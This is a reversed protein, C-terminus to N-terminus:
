AGSRSANEAPPPVAFARVGTFSYASSIATFRGSKRDRYGDALRHIANWVGPCSLASLNAGNQTMQEISDYYSSLTYYGFIGGEITGDDKLTARFRAGRIERPADIIQEKYNLVVDFPETTLVGEVIRGRGTARLRPDPDITFSAGALTNGRGDRTLPDTAAYINVTVDSDNRADDVGRLEILTPARASMPRKRAEDVNSSERFPTVCGVARWLQNDVGREGDPGVFDEKGAKGDLDMGAAVRGDYTRFDKALAPFDRPNSCASYVVERKQFALRGTGAPFGNLAGIALAQEPTPTSGPQLGPPLKVTAARTGHLFLRRFKFYENMRAELAQRKDKGAYRAQEDPSLMAFFRDLGGADPMACRDAPGGSALFINILVFTRVGPEGGTPVDAATLGATAAILLGLRSGRSKWGLGSRWSM